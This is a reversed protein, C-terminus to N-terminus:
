LAKIRAIESDPALTMGRTSKFDALTKTRNRIVGPTPHEPDISEKDNSDMKAVDAPTFKGTIDYKARIGNLMEADYKVAADKIHSREDYFTAAQLETLVECLNPWLRVAEEAFPVEVFVVGYWADPDPNTADVQGFGCVRDYHWGGFFDFYKRWDLGKRLVSPVQNFDPYKIEDAYSLKVKLPILQM